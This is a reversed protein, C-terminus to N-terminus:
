WRTSTGCASCPRVSAISSNRAAILARALEAGDHVGPPYHSALGGDDLSQRTAPGVAWIEGLDTISSTRRARLLAAGLFIAAHRSAVVVAAFPGTQIAQALVDRDNADALQQTVPM